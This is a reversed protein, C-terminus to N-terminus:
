VRPIPRAGAVRQQHRHLGDDAAAYCLAVRYNTRCHKVTRLYMEFDSIFAPTLEKLAIDSIHYREQLFSQLHRYVVQYKWLIKISKMGAEVQCAYDENHQAFVKM